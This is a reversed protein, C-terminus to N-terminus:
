GSLTHALSVEISLTDDVLFGGTEAQSNLTIIGDWRLVDERCSNAKGDERIPPPLAHLKSEGIVIVKQIKNGYSNASIHRM